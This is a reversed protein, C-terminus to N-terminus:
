GIPSYKCLNLREQFAVPNVKISVYASKQQPAYSVTPLSLSLSAKNLLVNSFSRKTPNSDDVNVPSDVKNPPKRFLDAHSLYDEMIVFAYWSFCSRILCSVQLLIVGIYAWMVKLDSKDKEICYFELRWQIIKRGECKIERCM